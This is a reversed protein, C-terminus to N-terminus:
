RPAAGATLATLVAMAALTVIAAPRWRRMAKTSHATTLRNAM